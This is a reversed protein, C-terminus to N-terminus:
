ISAAATITLGGEYTGAALSPGISLGITFDTSSTGRTGDLIKTASSAPITTYDTFLGGKLKWCNSTGNIDCSDSSPIYTAANMTNRLQADNKGQVSLTYDSNSTVEASFIGTATMNHALSFTFTPTTGANTDGEATPADLEDAENGTQDSLAASKAKLRLTLVPNVTVSAAGTKNVQPAAAYSALPLLAAGSMTLTGFAIAFIKATKKM